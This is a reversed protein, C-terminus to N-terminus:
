LAFYIKLNEAEHFTQQINHTMPQLHIGWDYVVVKPSQEPLSIDRDIRSSQFNSVLCM